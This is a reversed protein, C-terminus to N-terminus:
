KAEIGAANATIAENNIGLSAVGFRRIHINNITNEAHPTDDSISWDASSVNKSVASKSWPIARPLIIVNDIKIKSSKGWTPLLRAPTAPPINKEAASIPPTIPGTEM